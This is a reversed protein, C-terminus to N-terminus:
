AKVCRAVARASTWSSYHQLPSWSLWAALACSVELVTDGCGCEVAKEAASPSRLLLATLLGLAQELTAAKELHAHVVTQLTNLAGREVLETRISDSNALQRLLACCAKCVGPYSLYKQPM